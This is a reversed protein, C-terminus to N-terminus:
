GHAYTDNHNEGDKIDKPMAENLISCISNRITNNKDILSGHLLSSLKGKYMHIGKEQLKLDLDAERWGLLLLNHKVYIGFDTLKRNKVQIELNFGGQM